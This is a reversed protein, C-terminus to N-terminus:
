FDDAFGIIELAYHVRHFPRKGVARLNKRELKLSHVTEFYGIMNVRRNGFLHLRDRIFDGM